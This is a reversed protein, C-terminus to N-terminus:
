SSEAPPVFEVLDEPEFSCVPDGLHGYGREQLGRSAASHKRAAQGHLKTWLAGVATFRDGATLADFRVTSPASEPASTTM